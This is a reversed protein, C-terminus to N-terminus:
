TSLRPLHSIQMRDWVSAHIFAFRSTKSPSPLEEILQVSIHEKSWCLSSTQAPLNTLAPNHFLKARYFLNTWRLLLKKGWRYGFPTKRKIKLYLKWYGLAQLLPQPVQAHPSVSILPAGFLVRLAGKPSTVEGHPVNPSTSNKKLLHLGLFPGNVSTNKDSTNLNHQRVESLLSVSFPPSRQYLTNTLWAWIYM